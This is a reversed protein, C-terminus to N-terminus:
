FVGMRERVLRSEFGAWCQDKACIVEPRELWQVNQSWPTCRCVCCSPYLFWDIYVGKCDNDPDYALLRHYTYKQECICTGSCHNTTEQRCFVLSCSTSSPNVSPIESFFRTTNQNTWPQMKLHCTLYVSLFCLDPFIALEEPKLGQRIKNINNINIKNLGQM